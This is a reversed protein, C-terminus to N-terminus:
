GSGSPPSGPDPRGRAATHATVEDRRITANTPSRAPSTPPSGFTPTRPTGHSCPGNLSEAALHGEPCLLRAVSDRPERQPAASGVFSPAPDHADEPAQTRLRILRLPIELDSPALGSQVGSRARTTTVTLDPKRSTDHGNGQASMAM